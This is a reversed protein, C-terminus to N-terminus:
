HGLTFYFSAGKGPRGKAWVRGGHRRIIREVTALGIGNGDFDNGGHLREFPRFLKDAFTMDFGVGDDSVCFAVEGDDGNVCALEIRAGDKKGTFKWANGLLNLLVDYILAPDGHAALGAQIVVEVNRHPENARLEEAVTSAMATLDLREKRPESRGVRSMRLLDDILAGMRRSAASARQLYNRGAEDLAAAYDELLVRCFGDISRLPARLDHSVSYSFAELERNALELAATREAVRNGLEEELRKQGTVDVVTAVYGGIRGEADREIVTIVELWREEPGRAFRFLLRGLEHRSEQESWQRAIRDRDEGHVHRIWDFGSVDADHLGLTDRVRKNLYTCRGRRDFRAIGVPVTDALARFLRESAELERRMDRMPTVDLAVAIVDGSPEHRAYHNISSWPRGEFTGSAEFLVQEGRQARRVYDAVEPFTEFINVGVAQREQLGLRELGRGVSEEIIGKPNVRFLIIPFSRINRLALELPMRIERDRAQAVEAELERVRQELEAIRESAAGDWGSARTSM